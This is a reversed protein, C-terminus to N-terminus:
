VSSDGRACAELAALDAAVVAAVAMAREKAVAAMARDKALAGAAATWAESEWGAEALGARSAAAAAEM